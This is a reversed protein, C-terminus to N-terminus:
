SEAWRVTVRIDIPFQQRKPRRDPADLEAVHILLLTLRAVRDRLPRLVQRAAAGRSRRGRLWGWGHRGHDLEGGHPPAPRDKASYGPAHDKRHHEDGQAEGSIGIIGPLDIGGQEM